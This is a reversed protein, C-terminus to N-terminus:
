RFNTQHQAQKARCFNPRKPLTNPTNTWQQLPSETANRQISSVSKKNHEQTDVEKPSKLHHSHCHSMTMMSLDSSTPMLGLGAFALELKARALVPVVGFIVFCTPPVVTVKVASKTNHKHKVATSNAVRGNIM